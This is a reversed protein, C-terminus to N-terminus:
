RTEFLFGLCNPSFFDQFVARCCSFWSVGGGRYAVGRSPVRGFALCIIEKVMQLGNDHESIFVIGGKILPKPPPNELGKSLGMYPCPPTTIHDLFCVFAGSFFWPFPTAPDRTDRLSGHTLYATVRRGGKLPQLRELDGALARPGHNFFGM